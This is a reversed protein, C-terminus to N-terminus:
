LTLISPASPRVSSSVYSASTIPVPATLTTGGMAPSVPGPASPGASPTWVRCVMPSTWATM